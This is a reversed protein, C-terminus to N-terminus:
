LPGPDPVPDPVPTLEELNEVVDDPLVTKDQDTDPTDQTPEDPPAAM